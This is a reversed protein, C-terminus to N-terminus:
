HQAGHRDRDAAARAMGTVRSESEHRRRGPAHEAMLSQRRIMIPRSRPSGRRGGGAAARAGVKLSVHHPDDHDHCIIGPRWGRSM